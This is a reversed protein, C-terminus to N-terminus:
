CETGTDPDVSGLSWPVEHYKVIARRGPVGNWSLRSGAFATTRNHPGTLLKGRRKLANVYKLKRYCAGLNLLLHAMMWSM